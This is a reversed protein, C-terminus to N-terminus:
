TINPPNSLRGFYQHLTLRPGGGSLGVAKAHFLSVDYLVATGAPAEVRDFCVSKLGM